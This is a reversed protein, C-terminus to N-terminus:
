VMRFGYGYLWWVVSHYEGKVKMLSLNHQLVRWFFAYIPITWEKWRRWFIPTSMQQNGSILMKCTSSYFLQGNQQQIAGALAPQAILDILAEAFAKSQIYSPYKERRAKQILSLTDMCYFHMIWITATLLYKTCLITCFYWARKDLTAVVWQNCFCSHQIFICFGHLHGRWRCCAPEYSLM